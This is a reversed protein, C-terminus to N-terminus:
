RNQETFVVFDEKAMNIDRGAYDMINGVAGGSVHGHHDGFEVVHVTTFGKEKLRKLDCAKEYFRWYYDHLWQSCDYRSEEDAEKDLEKHYRELYEKSQAELEEIRKDISYVSPKDWEQDADKAGFTLREIASVVDTVSISGYDGYPDSLEFYQHWKIMLDCLDQEDEGKHVFTFSTSSSNSVFGARTKM